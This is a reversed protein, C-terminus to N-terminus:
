IQTNTIVPDSTSNIRDAQAYFSLYRADLYLITTKSSQSTRELKNSLILNTTDSSM